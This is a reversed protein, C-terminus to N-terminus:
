KVVASFMGFPGPKKETGPRWDGIGKYLGAYTVISALAAVTIQDDWVQVVGVASWQEFMPRVRVHKNQGIRARKLFLSFGKTAVFQRHAAFDPENRLALIPQVDIAKGGVLLPWHGGQVLMGSQTQSKFTKGSRGGPVPVMAGGEMFARMLNDLPLGIVKGDHYLSGLWRYAPTRDDGAKSQKKHSPDGQWAAMEDAWDINDAHMLLPMKGTLTVTYDRLM